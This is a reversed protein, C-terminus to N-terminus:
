KIKGGVLSLIHELDEIPAHYFPADWLFVDPNDPHRYKNAIDDEWVKDWKKQRRQNHAETENKPTNLIRQIARVLRAREEAQGDDNQTLFDCAVQSRWVCLIKGKYYIFDGMRELITGYPINVDGLTLDYARFRARRTVMYKHANVYM